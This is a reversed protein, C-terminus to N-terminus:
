PHLRGAEAAARRRLRVRRRATRSEAAQGRAGRARHVRPRARQGTERENVYTRYVPFCAIIERMAYALSNLTFDRSHRNRESFRNLGHALVNLEGAMSVRLVLQKGRYAIERFPARMRTFREYVSNIAGENRSDVFLGNLLALFDYGTTGEVPWKPLEEDFGLIKEVTVYFRRQM